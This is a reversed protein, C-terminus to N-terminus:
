EKKVHVQQLSKEFEASSEKVITPLVTPDIFASTDGAERRAERELVDAINPHSTLVIDAKMGKLKRFTERYNAAIDPYGHNGNLVNGAVTISCLFLVNLSRGGEQVTTTWSTGGPTHGPTLYATLAIDGVRITQHNRIVQDVKIPTWSPLLYINQGRPEGHELAWMDEQSALFRAGTDAKIKALAGVHDSHAHDSILVKVANLPIGLAQINREILAANEAMTGNLLVAGKPSGILYAALGQSGVYYINGAIRFPKVPASWAAPPPPLPLGPGKSVATQGRAPAGFAVALAVGSLVKRATKIVRRM